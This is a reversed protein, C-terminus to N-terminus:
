PPLGRNKDPLRRHQSILADMPKEDSWVMNNEVMKAIIGM